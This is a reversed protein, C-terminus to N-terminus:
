WGKQKRVAILNNRKRWDQITQIRVGLEEAIERDYYGADYLEKARATDLRGTVNPPLNHRARWSRVATASIGLASMIARDNEGADYLQRAAKENIPFNHNAPFGNKYRWRAVTTASVGVAQAIVGDSCGADYMHKAKDTDWLKPQWGNSYENRPLGLRERHATITKRHRDMERAIESDCLGQAYLARFREVDFGSYPNGARKQLKKMEDIYM